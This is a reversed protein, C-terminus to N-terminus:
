TDMVILLQKHTGGGGPGGGGCGGGTNMGGGGGGGGGGGNRYRTFLFPRILLFKFHINKFLCDGLLTYHSYVMFMFDIKKKNIQKKIAM